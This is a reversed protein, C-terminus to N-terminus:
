EVDAAPLVNGYKGSFPTLRKPRKYFAIRSTDAAYATLGEIPLLMAVAKDSTQAILNQARLWRANLSSQDYLGITGHVSRGNLTVQSNGSAYVHLNKADVWDASVETNGAAVVQDLDVPGTLAVKVSGAAHVSFPGLTELSKGVVKGEGLVELNKLNAARILVHVGRPARINLVGRSIKSKVYPFIKPNGSLIVENKEGGGVIELDSIYYSHVASFNSLALNKEGWDSAFVPMSALALLTIGLRLTSKM